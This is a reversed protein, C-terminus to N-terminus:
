TSITLWLLPFSCQSNLLRPFRFPIRVKRSIKGKHMKLCSWLILVAASVASVLYLTYYTAAVGFSKDVQKERTVSHILDYDWIIVYLVAFISASSLLFSRAPFFYRGTLSAHRMISSTLPFMVVFLILINAIEQCVNVAAFIKVYKLTDLKLCGLLAEDATM